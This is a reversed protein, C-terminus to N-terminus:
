LSLMAGETTRQVPRVGMPHLRIHASGFLILGRVKHLISHAKEFKWANTVGNKEPLNSKLLEVVEVSKEQLRQLEASTMGFKRSQMHWELTAVHSEILKECPDQLLPKKYLPSGHKAATIEANILKIQAVVLCTDSILHSIPDLNHLPVQNFSTMVLQVFLAKTMLIACTM